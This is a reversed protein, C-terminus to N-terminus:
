RRELIAEIQRIHNIDHGAFMRAYTAITERGREAHIGHRKWEAANLSRFLELNAARLARFTDLSARPDRHAYDGEAAWRDQDFAEITSGPAALITRVRYGGVLEADALHAVIEGVSWRSPEPRLMLRRRPRGKLLREIRRPAAAQLKLPDRDGVYTLVREIYQPVTEPM